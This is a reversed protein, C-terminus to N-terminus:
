TFGEDGPIEWIILADAGIGLEQFVLSNLTTQDARSLGVADPLAM